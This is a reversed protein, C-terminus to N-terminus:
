PCISTIGFPLRTYRYRGWPTHFTTLYSSEDDLECQLFGERLDAKSFVKVNGLEPLIDEIVPLPYHCRKIAKNLHVPDICVRLKGNPKIVTVLNSVWQTPRDTKKIVGLDELRKLEQKLKPKIAIPVRRPPMVVPTADDEVDLHVLGPL